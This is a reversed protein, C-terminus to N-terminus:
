VYKKLCDDEAFKCFFPPYGSKKQLSASSLRTGAKAKEPFYPTMTGHVTHPQLTQIPNKHFKYLFNAPSAFFGGRGPSTARRFASVSLNCCIQSPRETLRRSVADRGRKDRRSMEGQYPSDAGPLPALPHPAGRQRGRHPSPPVASGHRILHPCECKRLATWRMLRRRRCSGRMPSAM